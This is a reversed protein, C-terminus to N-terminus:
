LTPKKRVNSRMEYRRSFLKSMRTESFRSYYLRAAFFLLHEAHKLLCPSAGRSDKLASEMSSKCLPEAAIRVNARRLILLFSISCVGAVSSVTDMVRKIINVASKWTNITNITNIAEEARHLDTGNALVAIM